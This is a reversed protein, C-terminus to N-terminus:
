RSQAERLEIGLRVNLSIEESGASMNDNTVSTRLIVIYFDSSSIPFGNVCAFHGVINVLKM